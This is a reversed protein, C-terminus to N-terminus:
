VINYAPKKMWNKVRWEEIKSYILEYPTKEDNKLKWNFYDDTIIEAKLDSKFDNIFLRAKDNTELIYFKWPEAILIWCDYPNKELQSKHMILENNMFTMAIRLEEPLKNILRETELKIENQLESAMEYAKSYAMGWRHNRSEIVLHIGIESLGPVEINNTVDRIISLLEGFNKLYDGEYKYCYIRSLIENRM